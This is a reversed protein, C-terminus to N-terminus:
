NLPGVQKKASLIVVSAVVAIGGIIGVTYWPNVAGNFLSPAPPRQARTVPANPPVVKIAAVKFGFKYLVKREGIRVPLILDIKKGNNQAILRRGSVTGSDLTSFLDNEVWGEEADWTINTRPILLDQLYGRPGVLIPAFGKVSDSYLSQLNRAPITRNDIAITAAGSEVQLTQTTLNLITYSIAADDIAFTISVNADKFELRPAIVPEALQYVYQYKKGDVGPAPYSSACGSAVQLFLLGALFSCIAKFARAHLLGTLIGANHSRGNM